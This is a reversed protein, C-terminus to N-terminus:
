CSKSAFGLWNLNDLERYGIKDNESSSQLAKEPSEFEFLVVRKVDRGGEIVEPKEDVILFKAGYQELLLSVRPFYEDYFTASDNVTVEAYIYGKQNPM